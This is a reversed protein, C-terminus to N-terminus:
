KAEAAAKIAQELHMIPGFLLNLLWGPKDSIGLCAQIPVTVTFAEAGAGLSAIINSGDDTLSFNGVPNSEILWSLWKATKKKERVERREEKRRLNAIDNYARVREPNRENFRRRAYANRCKVGCYKINTQESVIPKKCENCSRM